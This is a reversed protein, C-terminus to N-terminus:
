KLKQGAEVSDSRNLSFIVNKKLKLDTLSKYIKNLKTLSQSDRYNGLYTIAMNRLVKDTERVAIQALLSSAQANQVYGLLLIAKKKQKLRGKQIFIRGLLNFAKDKQDLNLLSGIAIIKLDDDSDKKIRNEILRKYRTLGKKALEEAIEIQLIEADDVWKGLPFREILKGVQVLADQQTAIVKEVDSLSRSLKNLCYGLWFYSPECYRSDSYKKIIYDFQKIAEAWNKEYIIKKAQSFIKKVNEGNGSKKQQAIVICFSLCLIIIFFTIRKFKM